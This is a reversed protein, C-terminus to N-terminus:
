HLERGGGDKLPSSRHTQHILRPHDYQAKLSDIADMYCDDSQSLGKIVNKQSDDKLSHRLYALKELEPLSPKNHTSIM